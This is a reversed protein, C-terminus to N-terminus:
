NEKIEGMFIWGEITSYRANAWGSTVETRAYVVATVNLVDDSDEIYAESNDWRTSKSNVDIWMAIM